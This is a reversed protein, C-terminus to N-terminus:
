PGHYKGRSNNIFPSPDVTPKGAPRDINQEDMLKNYAKMYSLVAKNKQRNM